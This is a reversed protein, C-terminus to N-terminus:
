GIEVNSFVRKVFFKLHTLFRDYHISNEDLEINFHYKVINLTNQIVKMMEKTQEMGISDFSANVVHLAIFGAEADPLRIDAKAEIIDLAEM